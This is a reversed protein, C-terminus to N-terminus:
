IFVGVACAPKHPDFGIPFDEFGEYRGCLLLMEEERALEIAKGQDYLRGQPTLLIMKLRPSSARSLVHEVAAFIPDPKLVMGPGGGFPRDDVVKHRGEAFDRFDIIDVKLLDNAIARGVISETLFANYLGPFLTLIHVIM